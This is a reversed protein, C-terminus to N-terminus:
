KTLSIRCEEFAKIESRVSDCVEAISGNLNSQWKEGPTESYGTYTTASDTPYMYVWIEKPKAIRVYDAFFDVSGFNIWPHGPVPYDWDFSDAAAEILSEIHTSPRYSWAQPTDKLKWGMIKGDYGPNGTTDIIQRDYEGAILRDGYQCHLKFYDVFVSCVGSTQFEFEVRFSSDSVIDSLYFYEQSTTEDKLAMLTDHDAPLDSVYITDVLRWKDPEAYNTNVARFIGVIDDPDAEEPNIGIKLHPFYQLQDPSLWTMRNALSFKLEDLMMGAGKYALFSDQVAGLITFKVRYFDNSDPHSVFYTAHSYKQQAQIHWEGEIFFSGYPVAFIGSDAFRGAQTTDFGGTTHWNIGLADHMVSLCSDSFFTETTAHSSSYAGFPLIDDGILQGLATGSLLLFLVTIRLM